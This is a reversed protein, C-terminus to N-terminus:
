HSGGGCWVVGGRVGCGGEAEGKWSILLGLQVEQCTTSLGINLVCYCVSTVHMHQMYLCYLHPFILSIYLHVLFHSM